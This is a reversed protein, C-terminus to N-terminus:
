GICFLGYRVISMYMCPFTVTEVIDSVREREARSFFGGKGGGGVCVCTCVCVRLIHAQTLTCVYAWGYVCWGMRLWGGKCENLNQRERVCEREVFRDRIVNIFLCFLVVVFSSYNSLCDHVNM